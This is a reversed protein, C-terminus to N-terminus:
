VVLISEVELVATGQMPPIGILTNLDDVTLLHKNFYCQLSNVQVATLNSQSTLINVEGTNSDQVM